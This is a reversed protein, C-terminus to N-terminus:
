QQNDRLFYGCAEVLKEMLMAEVCTRNTSSLSQVLVFLRHLLIILEYM